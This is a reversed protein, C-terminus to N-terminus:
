IDKWRNQEVLLAGLLNNYNLKKNEDLVEAYFVQSCRFDALSPARLGNSLVYKVGDIQCNDLCNDFTDHSSGHRSKHITLSADAFDFEAYFDYYMISRRTTSFLGMGPAQISISRPTIYLVNRYMMLTAKSIPKM